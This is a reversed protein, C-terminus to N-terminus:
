FRDQPSLTLRLVIPIGVTNTVNSKVFSFDQLDEVLTDRLTHTHRQYLIYVSVFVQVSACVAILTSRKM